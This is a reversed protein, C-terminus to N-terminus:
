DMDLASVVNQGEAAAAGGLPAALVSRRQNQGIAGGYPGRQAVLRGAPLPAVRPAAGLEVSLAVDKLICYVAKEAGKIIMALRIRVRDFACSSEDM